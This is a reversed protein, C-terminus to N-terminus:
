ACIPRPPLLLQSTICMAPLVGTGDYLDVVTGITEGSGQLAVAM